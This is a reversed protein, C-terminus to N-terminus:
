MKTKIEGVNAATNNTKIIKLCYLQTKILETRFYCVSHDSKVDWGTKLGWKWTLIRTCAGHVTTITSLTTSDKRFLWCLNKKRFQARNESLGSRRTVATDHSEMSHNVSKNKASKRLELRKTQELRRRRM